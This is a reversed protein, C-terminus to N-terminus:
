EEKKYCWEIINGLADCKTFRFKSKIEPYKEKDVLSLFEKIDRAYVDGSLINKYIVFYKVNGVNDSANYAINLITYLYLTIPYEKGNEDVQKLEHKFHIFFDGINIERIYNTQTHIDFSNDTIPDKVEITYKPDKAEIIYKM